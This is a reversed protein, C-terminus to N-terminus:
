KLEDIFHQLSRKAYPDCFCKKDKFIFIVDHGKKDKGKKVTYDGKGLRYIDSESAYFKMDKNVANFEKWVNGLTKRIEPKSIFINRIAAKMVRKKVERTKDSNSEAEEKSKAFEAINGARALNITMELTRLYVKVAKKNVVGNTVLLGRIIKISELTLLAAEIDSNIWMSHSDKSVKYTGAPFGYPPNLDFNWNTSKRVQEFNLVYILKDFEVEDRITEKKFGAKILKKEIWIEFSRLFPFGEKSYVEGIKKYDCNKIENSIHYQFDDWTDSLIVADLPFESLDKKM